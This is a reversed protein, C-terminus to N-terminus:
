GKVAQVFANPAVLKAVLEYIRSGHSGKLTIVDGPKLRQRLLEAEKQPLGTNQSLERPSLASLPVVEIGTEGAIDELVGSASAIKWNM